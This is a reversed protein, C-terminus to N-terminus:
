SRGATEDFLARWRGAVETLRFRPDAVPRPRAGARWARIRELYPEFVGLAGGVRSFSARWGVPLSGAVGQYIRQGRTVPLLQTADGLIEPAAGVDHTLVPTGVANAEALVLGFTEPVVFNPFFVCLSRRVSEVIRPHPVSGLWEVGPIRRAAEPQYGPNAVQLTLDPEARRLWEFADLALALGKSPASFFVLRSPDFSTDDPGLDDDIPNYIRCLSIPRRDLLPELTGGVQERHHDSVCVITLPREVLEALTDLLRRSRRSGPRMRDHLWLYLRAKPYRAAAQVLARPNRVVVVDTVGGITTSPRYRGEAVTRNPQVVIADLAEAVRVVTAETGGLAREALTRATYPTPCSPDIILLRSDSTSLRSDM